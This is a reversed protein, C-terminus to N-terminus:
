FLLRRACPSGGSSFCHSFSLTSLLWAHPPFRNPSWRRLTAPPAGSHFRQRYASHVLGNRLFPNFAQPLRWPAPWDAAQFPRALFSAWRFCIPPAVLPSGPVIFPLLLGMLTLEISCNSCVILLFRAAAVSGVVPLSMASRPAFRFSFIEQGLHPFLTCLSPM